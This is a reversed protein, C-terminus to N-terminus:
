DAFSERYQNSLWNKDICIISGKLAMLNAVNVLLVHDKVELLTTYRCVLLKRLQM